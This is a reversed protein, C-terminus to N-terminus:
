IHSYCLDFYWFRDFRILLGLRSARSKALAKKFTVSIRLVNKDSRKDSCTGTNPFSNSSISIIKSGGISTWFSVKDRFDQIWWYHSSQLESRYTHLLSFHILYHFLTHCFPYISVLSSFLLFDVFVVVAVVVAVVVVVVVVVLVVIIIIFFKSLHLSSSVPVLITM